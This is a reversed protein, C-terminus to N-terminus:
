RTSDGAICSGRNWYRPSERTYRNYKDNCRYIRMAARQPFVLSLGVNKWWVQQKVTLFFLTCFCLPPPKSQLKKDMYEDRNSRSARRTRAARPPLRLCCARRARLFVASDVTRPLSGQVLFSAALVLNKSSGTQQAGQRDPGPDSRTEEAQTHDTESGVQPTATSWSM